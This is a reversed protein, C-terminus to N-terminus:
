RFWRRVIVGVFNLGLLLALALVYPPLGLLDRLHFTVVKAWMWDITGLDGKLAAAIYDSEIQRIAAQTCRGGAHISRHGRVPFQATGSGADAKFHRDGGIRDTSPQRSRFGFVLHRLRCWL